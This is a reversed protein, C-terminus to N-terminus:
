DRCLVSARTRGRGKGCGSGPRFASKARGGGWGGEVEDEDDDWGGFRVGGKAGRPSGYKGSAKMAGGGKYKDRERESHRGSGSSSSHHHHRAGKSQQPRVVEVAQFAKLLEAWPISAGGLAFAHVHALVSQAAHRDLGVGVRRLFALVRKLDLAGKGAADLQKFLSKAEKPKERALAGAKRLLRQLDPAAEKGRVAQGLARMRKVFELLQKMTLEDGELALQTELYKLDARSPNELLNGFLAAAEQRQMTAEEMGDFAARLQATRQRLESHIQEFVCPAAAALPQFRGHSLRGVLFPWGHGGRSAAFVKGTDPDVLLAKGDVVSEELRWIAEGGM